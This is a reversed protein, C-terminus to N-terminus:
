LLVKSQPLHAIGTWYNLIIKMAHVLAEFTVPKTIFSNVGLQYSRMIDEESKSTTLVITPILRLQPDTKLEHLVDLGDKKPMRLDLLILKPLKEQKLEGYQKRRRLYDITEEGDNVFQVNKNFGCEKLADKVLIRDDPDDEAILITLQRVENNPM